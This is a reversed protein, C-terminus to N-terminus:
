LTGASGRTQPDGSPPAQAKVGGAALAIFEVGRRIVQDAKLIRRHGLHATPLLVADPWRAALREADHFPVERDGRDHVILAPVRLGAVREFIEVDALRVRTQREIGRRFERMAADGLGTLAGFRQLVDHISSPSAILVVARAELGRELALTTIAGGFSHAVVAALPGLDRAVKRIAETCEILDTRTGPSEGHAPLDLAIVRFGADVLPEVFRGLQTGRGEWGHVLVVPPAGPAGFGYAELRPGLRVRTGSSALHTEWGPRHHRRPTCFLRLALRGAAQPSVRSLVAFVSRLALLLWRAYV